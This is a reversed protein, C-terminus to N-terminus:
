RRPPKATKDASIAREVLMRVAEARSPIPTQIRRWDDLMALFGDSARMQFIRDHTLKQPPM